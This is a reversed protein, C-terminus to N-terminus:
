LSTTHCVMAYQYSLGVVAVSSNIFNQLTQCFKIKDLSDWPLVVTKVACRNIYSGGLTSTLNTTPIQRKLPM